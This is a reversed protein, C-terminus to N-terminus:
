GARRLLVRYDIIAGRAGAEWTLCYEDPMRAVFTGTDGASDDRVVPALVAGNEHYHINFALPESSAFRWDLRDGAALRVCDEHMAYPHVILREVVRPVGAAVPSQACATVLLSIVLCTATTRLRSLAPVGVRLALRRAVAAGRRATAGDLRRITPVIV